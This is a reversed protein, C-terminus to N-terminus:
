SNKQVLNFYAISEQQFSTQCIYVNYVSTIFVTVNYSKNVM